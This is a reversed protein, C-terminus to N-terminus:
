LTAKVARDRRGLGKEQFTQNVQVKEKRAKRARPSAKAKPGLLSTKMKMVGIARPTLKMATGQEKRTKTLYSDVDVERVRAREV